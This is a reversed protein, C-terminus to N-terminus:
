VKARIKFTRVNLQTLVRGGADTVEAEAIMTSGFALATLDGSSFQYSATGSLPDTVTMVRTQKAGGDIRWYLRITAGTLDVLAKTQRSRFTARLLSNDGAVFDGEHM